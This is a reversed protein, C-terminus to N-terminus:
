VTLPAVSMFRVRTLYGRGGTEMKVEREEATPGEAAGAGALCLGLAGGCRRGEAGAGRRSQPTAIRSSAGREIKRMPQEASGLQWQHAPSPPAPKSQRVPLLPSRSQNPPRPPVPRSPDRPAHHPPPRAHLPLPQHRGDANVQASGTGAGGDILHPASPRAPRTTAARPPTRAPPLHHAAAM